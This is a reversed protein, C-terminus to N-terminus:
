KANVIAFHMTLALAGGDTAAAARVQCRNLDTMDQGRAHEETALDEPGARSRRRSRPSISARGRTAARCRAISNVSHPSGAIGFALRTFGIRSVLYLWYTLSTQASKSPLASEESGRM